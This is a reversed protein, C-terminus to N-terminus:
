RPEKLREILTANATGGCECLPQRGTRGIPDIPLGPPTRVADAIVATAM